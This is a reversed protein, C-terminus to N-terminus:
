RRRNWPFLKTGFAGLVFFLVFICVCHVLRLIWVSIVQVETDGLATLEYYQIIESKSSVFLSEEGSSGIKVRPYKSGSIIEFEQDYVALFLSLEAFMVRLVRCLTGATCKTIHHVRISVPIAQWLTTTYQVTFMKKLMFVTHMNTDLLWILMSMGWGRLCCSCPWRSCLEFYSFTCHVCICVSLCRYSIYKQAHHNSAPQVM